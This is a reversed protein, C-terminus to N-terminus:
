RVDDWTLIHADFTEKSHSTFDILEGTQANIVLESAIYRQEPSFNEPYFPINPYSNMVGCVVWAPTLFFEEGPLDPSTASIYGLRIECISQIYGEQIRQRIVGQINDFPLLPVDEICEGILRPIEIYAGEYEEDERWFAYILNNPPETRNKIISFSGPRELYAIGNYIPCFDVVVLKFSSYADQKVYTGIKELVTGNLDWVKSIIKRAKEEALKITEEDLADENTSYFDFHGSDGAKEDQRNKVFLAQETNEEICYGTKELDPIKGQYTIKLIPFREVEPVVVAADITCEFNEKGGKLNETWTSPVNDRMEQISIYSSDAHGSFTMSLMLVFVLAMLYFRKGNSRM